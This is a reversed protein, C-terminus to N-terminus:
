LGSRSTMLNIMDIKPAAVLYQSWFSKPLVYALIHTSEQIAAAVFRHSGDILLNSNEADEEACFIIPELSCIGILPLLRHPELGRNTLMWNAFDKDVPVLYLKFGHNPRKLHELIRQVAFTRQTGKIGDVVPDDEHTFTIEGKVSEFPIM